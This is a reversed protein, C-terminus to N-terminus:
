SGAGTTTRSRAAARARTLWGNWRYAGLVKLRFEIPWDTPEVQVRGVVFEDDSTATDPVIGYCREFGAARAAMDVRADHDGFPFAHYRVTRGTFAELEARSGALEDHLEADTAQPLRVHNRSHSGIEVSSPLSALEKPTLPVPWGAFDENREARRAWETPVFLASPIGRLELEPLAVDVFSRFGDDFTVAVRWEDGPEHMEALARPMAHAVMAECQRAFRERRREPVDHYMLVVGTSRRGRRRSPAVIGVVSDIAFVVVSVALKVLRRARDSVTSSARRVVRAPLPARAPVGPATTQTRMM